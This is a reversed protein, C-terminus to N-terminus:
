EIFSVFTLRLDDPHNNRPGKVRAVIRDGYKCPLNPPVDVVASTNPNLYVFYGSSNIPKLITAETLDDRNLM